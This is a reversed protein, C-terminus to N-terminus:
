IHTLFEALAMHAASYIELICTGGKRDRNQWTYFCISAPTGLILGVLLDQNAAIAVIQGMSTLFDQVSGLYSKVMAM